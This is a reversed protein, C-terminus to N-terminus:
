WILRGRVFVVLDSGAITSGIQDVDLTLVSDKAISTGGDPTGSTADSASIAVTPRNAQTTFVTTGGINVDVIFAAGTPVTGLHVRVEEILCKAPVQFYAAKNTGVTQAGAVYLAWQFSDEIKGNVTGDRSVAWGKATGRNRLQLMYGASTDAYLQVTDIDKESICLGVFDAGVDLTIGTGVLDSPTAPVDTQAWIGLDSVGVGAYRTNSSDNSISVGGGSDMTLAGNFKSGASLRMQQGGSAAYLALGSGPAVATTDPTMLVPLMNKPLSRMVRCHAVHYTLTGAAQTRNVRVKIGTRNATPIWTVQMLAFRGGNWKEGAGFTALSITIADTGILGFLVDAGCVVNEEVTLVVFATYSIGAKFTGPVAVEVYQSAATTVLKLSGTNNSPWMYAITADHSLTGGVNAWNGSSGKFSSSNGVLLDDYNVPPSPSGVLPIAM